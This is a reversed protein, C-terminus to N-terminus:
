DECPVEFTNLCRDCMIQHGDSTRKPLEKIKTSGCYPCYNIIHECVHLQAGRPKKVEPM